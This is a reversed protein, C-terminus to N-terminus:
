GNEGAGGGMAAREEQRRQILYEEIVEAPITEGTKEFSISEQGISFDKFEETKMTRCGEYARNFFREKSSKGEVQQKGGQAKIEGVIRKGNVRLKDIAWPMGFLDRLVLEVINTKNLPAERALGDLKDWVEQTVYVNLLKKSM